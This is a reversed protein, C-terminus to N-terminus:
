SQTDNALLPKGPRTHSGSVVWINSGLSHRIENNSEALIRSRLTCPRQDLPTTDRGPRQGTNGRSAKIVTTPSQCITTMTTMMTPPPFRQSRTSSKPPRRVGFHDMAAERLFLYQRTLAPSDHIHRPNLEREWTDTLRETCTPLFPWLTSPKALAGPAYLLLSFELAAIKKTHASSQNRRPRLVELVKRSEPDLLTRRARRLPSAQLRFVIVIKLTRAGLIRLTVARPVRLLIWRGVPISAMVLRPGEALDEVPAARIPPVGWGDREVTVEASAPASASSSRRYAPPLHVVLSGLRCTVFVLIARFVWTYFSGSFLEALHAEV